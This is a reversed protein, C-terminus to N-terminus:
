LSKKLVRYVSARGIALKNAIATAGMGEAHLEIVQQADISQPRGMHIGKEKAAKRGAQTRENIRAKEAEALASIITYIVRGMTSNIDTDGLDLLKLGCGKEKLSDAISLAHITDRALRDTKCCIVMDGERVINLMANLEPRNLDGGSAKDTFIRDCGLTELESLQIDASQEITSVRAYGFIM